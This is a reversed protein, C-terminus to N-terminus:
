FPSIQSSDSSKNADPSTIDNISRKKLIPINYKELFITPNNLINNLEIGLKSSIYQLEQEVTPHCEFNISYAYCATAGLYNGKEIEIYGIRRYFKAIHKPELLYRGMDYLIEEASSFDKLQIFCECIEFRSSIGIPNLVLSAKLM